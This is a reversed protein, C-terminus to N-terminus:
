GDNRGMMRAVLASGLHEELVLAPDIWAVTKTLWWNWEM